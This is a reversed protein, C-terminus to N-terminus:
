KKLQELLVKVKHDVIFNHHSIKLENLDYCPVQKKNEQVEKLTAQYLKDKNSARVFDLANQDNPNTM